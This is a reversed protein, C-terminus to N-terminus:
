PVLVLAGSNNIHKSCEAHQMIVFIVVSCTTRIHLKSIGHSFHCLHRKAYVLLSQAESSARLKIIHKKTKIHM